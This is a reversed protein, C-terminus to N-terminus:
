RIGGNAWTIYSFLMLGFSSVTIACITLLRRVMPELRSWVSSHRRDWLIGIGLGVMSMSAGGALLSLVRLNPSMHWALTAGILQAGVVAVHVRWLRTIQVAEHSRMEFQTTGAANKMRARRSSIFRFIVWLLIVIAAAAAIRTEPFIIFGLTVVPLAAIALVFRTTSIFEGWKGLAAEISTKM